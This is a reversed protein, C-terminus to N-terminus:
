PAPRSMVDNLAPAFRDRIESFIKDALERKYPHSTLNRADLMSLWLEEDTARLLGLKAAAGIAKKPFDARVGNREAADVSTM